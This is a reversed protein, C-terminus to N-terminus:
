ECGLARRVDEVSRALVYLGGHAEIMAQWRKQEETQRGRQAKVEIEIRQGTPMRLGSLDAQGPMGARVVRGDQTRAVLVNARWIRLDPRSGFTALIDRQIQAETM